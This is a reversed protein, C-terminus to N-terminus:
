NTTWKFIPRLLLESFPKLAAQTLCLLVAMPSKICADRTVIPTPAPFVYGAMMHNRVFSKFDNLELGTQRNISNLWTVCFDSITRVDAGCALM